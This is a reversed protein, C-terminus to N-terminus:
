VFTLIIIAFIRHAMKGEVVISIAFSRTNAACVSSVFFSYNGIQNASFTFETTIDSASRINENDDKWIVEPAGANTIESTSAWLTATGGLALYKTTDGTLTEDNYKVILVDILDDSTLDKFYCVYNAFKFFFLLLFVLLISMALSILEVFIDIKCLKTAM